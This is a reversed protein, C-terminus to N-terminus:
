VYCDLAVRGDECCLAKNTNFLTVDNCCEFDGDAFFPKRKPYEGCCEIVHPESGAFCQDSFDSFIDHKYEPEFQYGDWLLKVLKTIFDIECCCTHLQCDNEQNSAKCSAYINGSMVEHNMEVKYTQNGPHCINDEFYSDIKACRYCLQLDRCIEDIVNRPTGFGKGADEAFNCWCGYGDIASFDFVAGCSSDPACSGTRSLAVISKRALLDTLSKPIQENAKMLKVLAKATGFVFVKMQPKVNDNELLAQAWENVVRVAERIEDYSADKAKELNFTMKTEGTIFDLVSNALSFVALLIIQRM